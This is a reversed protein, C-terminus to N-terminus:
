RKSKLISVHYDHSDDGNEYGSYIGEDGHSTYSTDVVAVPAVVVPGSITAHSSARHGLNALPNGYVDYDVLIGSSIGFVFPFLSIIQRFLSLKM